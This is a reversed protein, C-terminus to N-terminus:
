RLGANELYCCDCTNEVLNVRFCLDPKKNDLVHYTNGMIHIVNMEQTQKLLEKMKKNYYPTFEQIIAKIAILRDRGIEHLTKM